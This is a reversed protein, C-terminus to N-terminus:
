GGLFTKPSGGATMPDCHPPGVPPCLADENAHDPFHVIVRKGEIKVASQSAILAGGGHSNQDGEVAWLVGESRVTSQNTVM